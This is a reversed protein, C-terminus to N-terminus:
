ASVFKTNRGEAFVKLFMFLVARKAGEFDQNPENQSILAKEMELLLKKREAGWRYGGLRGDKRTVRHCPIVIAIPNSACANAVARAGKPNALKEGIEGYSITSGYPISQLEKWVRRQFTTAKIDLPIGVFSRSTEEGDIYKVIARTWEAVQNQCKQVDARPYEKLLAQLLKGESDDLGVSCVGYETWAVLLRGLSCDTIAYSIRMGEGGRKYVGPQMGLKGEPRSYLSSMSNYGADYASRRVSKGNKLSTKLHNLRSTEAYQRPTVGTIRKFTRQLYFSSVGMEESLIKLTLKRDSNTKIYNCLQEVLRAQSLGAAEAPKCRKCPKFGAKEASSFDSFFVVKEKGPRRSPCSPKCYIGTSLVAYVFKYDYSQDRRQVAKWQEEITIQEKDSISM